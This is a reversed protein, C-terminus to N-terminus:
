VHARGIKNPDEVGDIYLRMVSPEMTGVISMEVGAWHINAASHVVNKTGSPTDITFSVCNDRTPGVVDGALWIMDQHWLGAGNHFFIICEDAVSSGWRTRCAISFNTKYSVYQTMSDLRVRDNFGGFKLGGAQWTVDNILRGTIRNETINYIHHGSGENMVWGAVLGHALPHSHKLRLGLSPKQHYM